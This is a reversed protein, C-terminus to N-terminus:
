FVFMVKNYSISRVMIQQDELVVVDAKFTKDGYVMMENPSKSIIKKANLIKNRLIADDFHARELEKKARDSYQFTCNKFQELQGSLEEKKM